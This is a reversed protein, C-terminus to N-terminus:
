APAPAWGGWTIEHKRPQLLKKGQPAPAYGSLVGNTMVYKTAITPLKLTGSAIYVDKAAQMQTWWIDFLSNSASDGQLTIEMPIPVFTFGSSMIGDVGMMVEVSKIIPVNYVDDPAFGQIQQPTPFLPPVAVMLVVNAVTLSM